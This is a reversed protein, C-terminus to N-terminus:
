SEASGSAEEAAAAYAAAARAKAAVSKRGPKCRTGKSTSLAAAVGVRAAEWAEVDCLRWLLKRGGLNLAPPLRDPSRSHTQHITRPTTQWRAALDIPTLRIVAGNAASYSIDSM